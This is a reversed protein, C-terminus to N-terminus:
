PRKEAFLPAVNPDPTVVLGSTRSTAPFLPAVDPRMAARIDAIAFVADVPNQFENMYEMAFWRRGLKREESALFEPSIRPCDRATISLRRYEEGGDTWAQHFWGSTVFATSLAVLRGRSVALTPSAAHMVEDPIRSAEDAILLSSTYSRMRRERGPLALVRSGNALELRTASERVIPVPSHITHCATTVKRLLENSQDEVPAVVTITSGPQTIATHLALLSVSLSKGVQRACLMLVRPDTSRLLDRQWPDPAFGADRM